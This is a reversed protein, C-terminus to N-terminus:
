LVISRLSDNKSMSSIASVLLGLVQSKHRTRPKVNTVLAFSSVFLGAGNLRISANRMAGNSYAPEVWLM